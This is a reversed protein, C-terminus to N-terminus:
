LLARISIDNRHELMSSIRAVLEASNFPKILMEKIGRKTLQAILSKDSNATIVMIPISIHQDHLEDILEMGTIGPIAIDTIMLDFPRCERCAEIINKLADKGNSSMGVLYKQRKLTFGLSYLLPLDDEVIMIKHRPKM